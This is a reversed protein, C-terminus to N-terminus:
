IFLETYFRSFDGSQFLPPRTQMWGSETGGVGEKGVWTKDWEIGRILFMLGLNKKETAPTGGIPPTVERTTNAGLFLARKAPVTRFASANMPTQMMEWILAKNVNPLAPFDVQIGVQPMPINTDAVIKESNDEDPELTHGPIHMMEMAFTLSETFLTEPDFEKSQAEQQKIHALPAYSVDVKAWDYTIMDDTAHDSKSADTYPNVSVDDVYVEDQLRPHTAGKVIVVHEGVTFTQGWIALSFKLADKYAIRFSRNASIGGTSFKYSGSGQIEWVDFGAIKM